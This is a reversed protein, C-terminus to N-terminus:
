LSTALTLHSVCAFFQCAHGLVALCELSHISTTPMDSDIVGPQRSILSKLRSKWECGVGCATCAHPCVPSRTRAHARVCVSMERAKENSRNTGVKGEMKM